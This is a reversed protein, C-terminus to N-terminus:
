FRLCIEPNVNHKGQEKCPLTLRPETGNSGSDLQAGHRFIWDGMFKVFHQPVRPQHTSIWMRRPTRRDDHPPVIFDTVLICQMHM